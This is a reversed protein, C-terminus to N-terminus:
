NKYRDGLRASYAKYHHSLLLFGPSLETHSLSLIRERCLAPVRLGGPRVRVRTPEKLPQSGLVSPKLAFRCFRAPPLRIELDNRKADKRDGNTWAAEKQSLSTLKHEKDDRQHDLTETGTMGM